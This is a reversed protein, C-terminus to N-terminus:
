CNKHGASGSCAQPQCLGGSRVRVQPQLAGGVSGLAQLQSAYGVQTSGRSAAPVARRISGPSTAKGSQRSPSSIAAPLKARWDRQQCLGGRGFGPDASFPDPSGSRIGPQYSGDASVCPIAAEAWARGFGPETFGPRLSLSPRPKSGKTGKTWKKGRRRRRTKTLCHWRASILM